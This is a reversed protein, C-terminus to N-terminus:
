VEGVNDNQRTLREMEAETNAVLKEWHSQYKKQFMCMVSDKEAECEFREHLYCSGGFKTCARM